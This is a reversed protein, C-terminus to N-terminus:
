IILFNVSAMTNISPAFMRSTVQTLIESTVLPSHPMPPQGCFFLRGSATERDPTARGYSAVDTVSTQAALRCGYRATAAAMCCACFLPTLANGGGGNNKLVKLLTMM